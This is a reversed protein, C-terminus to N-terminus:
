IGSSYHFNYEVSNGIFVFLKIRQPRIFIFAFYKQRTQVQMPRVELDVTWRESLEAMGACM